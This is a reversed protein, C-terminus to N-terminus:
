TLLGRLWESQAILGDELRVRPVWGLLDLARTTDGGTQKVDGSVSTEARIPIRVKMISEIRQILDGMTVASGGSINLVTSPALPTRTALITADVVDDIYTFDRLHERAGFLPFPEQSLASSMLRTIAM